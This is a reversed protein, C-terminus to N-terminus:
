IKVTERSKKVYQLLISYRAERAGAPALVLSLITEWRCHVRRVEGAAKERAPGGSLSVETAMTMIRTRSSACQAPFETKRAQGKYKTLLRGEGEGQGRGGAPLSPLRVEGVAAPPSPLTLPRASV